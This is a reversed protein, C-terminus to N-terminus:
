PHPFFSSLRVIGPSSGEPALARNMRNAKDARSFDHGTVFGASNLKKAAQSAMSKIAKSSKSPTYHGNIENAKDACSFDHGTVFGASNLKKAPQSAMSKIAKSNKSPTYHGNIKNVKDAPSGRGTVPGLFRTKRFRTFGISKISKLLLSSSPDEILHPSDAGAARPQRTLLNASLMPRGGPIMWGRILSAPTVFGKGWCKHRLLISM